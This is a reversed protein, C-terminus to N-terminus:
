IDQLSWRTKLLKGFCSQGNLSITRCNKKYEIKVVKSCYRNKLETIACIRYYNIGESPSNDTYTTFNQDTDYKIYGDEPYVPNANKSSRVVKYYVLWEESFNKFANWKMIVQGNELKAWFYFKESTIPAKYGSSYEWGGASVLASFMSLTLLAWILYKKNKM